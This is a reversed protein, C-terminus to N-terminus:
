GRAQDKPFLTHVVRRLAPADLLDALGHMLAYVTLGLAIGQVLVPIESM